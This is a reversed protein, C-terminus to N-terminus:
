VNSDWSPVSNCIRFNGVFRFRFHCHKQLRGVQQSPGRQGRGRRSSAAAAAAPPPPPPLQELGLVSRLPLPGRCALRRCPPRRKRAGGSCRRPPDQVAGGELSQVARRGRSRPSSPRQKISLDDTRRSHLQIPPPPRLPPPTSAADLALSALRTRRRRCFPPSLRTRTRNHSCRVLSASDPSRLRGVLAWSVCDMPQLGDFVTESEGL